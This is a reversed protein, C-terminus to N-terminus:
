KSLESMKPAPLQHPFHSIDPNLYAWSPADSTWILGEIKVIKSDNLTGARVVIITPREEAESFLHTGCKSCFKGHIKNGRDVTSQFKSFKGTITVEAKPLALNLTANGAALTQCLNCWCARIVIPKCTAIYKVAGCLCSGNLNGM